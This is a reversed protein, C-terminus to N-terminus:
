GGTGANGCGRCMDDSGSSRPSSFQSLMQKPNEAGCQPCTAKNKNAYSIILDFKHGCKTCKFEFLPM